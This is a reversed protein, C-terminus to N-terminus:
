NTSRFFPDIRNVVRAPLPRPPALLAAALVVLGLLEFLNM